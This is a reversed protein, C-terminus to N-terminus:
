SKVNVGDYQKWCMRIQGAMAHAKEMMLRSDMMWAQSKTRIPALDLYIWKELENRGFYQFRIASM